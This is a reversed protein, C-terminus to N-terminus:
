FVDGNQEIKIKEYEVAVRRYFEQKVCELAGIIDNIAWYNLGKKNIYGKCIQIISYNLEGPSACNEGIEIINSIQAAYCELSKKKKEDIYPM